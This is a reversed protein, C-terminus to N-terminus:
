AKGWRAILARAAEQMAGGEAQPVAGQAHAALVDRYDAEADRLWRALSDLNGASLEVIALQVRTIEPGWLETEYRALAALAADVDEAAFAAEAAAAVRAAVPPTGASAM